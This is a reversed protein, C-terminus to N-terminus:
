CMTLARRAQDITVSDVVPAHEGSHGTATSSATPTSTLQVTM